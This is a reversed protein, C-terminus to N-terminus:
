RHRRRLLALLGISGLMAFAPEPVVTLMGSGEDFTYTTSGSQGSWINGSLSLANGGASVASFDGSFSTAEFLQYSAPQTLDYSGYSLIDLIGALTITGTAEVLDSDVGAAGGNDVLEMTTTGGLAFNGTISLTGISFGPALTTTIGLTKGAGINVIGNGSLNAQTFGSKASVDLTGSGGSSTGLILNSALGTTAALALTGGEVRVTGTATNTGSLTQTGSGIKTIALTGGTGSNNRLTGGFTATADAAGLTLTSTTSILQNQIFGTGGSLGNITESKGNMDLTGGNMLLDSKGAGHAIHTDDATNLKLTGGSLKWTGGSTASTQITVIANANSGTSEFTGTYGSMDGSLRLESSNSGSLTNSYRTLAGAGSIAGSLNLIQGIGVSNTSIGSAADVKIDRGFATTGTGGSVFLSGGKLVLKNATAGMQSGASFNGSLVTVDGTFDNAANTLALRGSSGPTTINSAHKVILGGNITGTIKGAVTSNGSLSADITPNTSEDYTGGFTIANTTDAAAGITYAGSTSGTTIRLQNVTVSSGLTVAVNGSATGGFVANNLSANNWALHSTVGQDWNSVGTSWTGAAYSSAGNGNTGINITGGDWFLDAASGTGTMGLVLFPLGLSRLTLSPLSNM